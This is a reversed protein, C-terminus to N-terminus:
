LPLSLRLVESQSKNVPAVNWIQSASNLFRRRCRSLWSWHYSQNFSSFYDHQLHARKKTCNKSTTQWVRLHFKRIVNQLCRSGAATTGIFHFSVEVMEYFTVLKSCDYFLYGLAPNLQHKRERLRRVKRLGKIRDSLGSEYIATYKTIGKHWYSM